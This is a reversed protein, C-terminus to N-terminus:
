IGLILAIMYYKRKGTEGVESLIVIKLDMCISAFSIIKM